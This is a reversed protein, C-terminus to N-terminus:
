GGYQFVFSKFVATDGDIAIDGDVLSHWQDILEYGNRKFQEIFDSESFVCCAYSAEYIPEHVTEIWVRHRKCVPTREVVIYKIKKAVVMQIVDNANDLYQLVSSFLVCNCKPIKDISEPPYCFHLNPRELHGKAYEVFHEQEIVTWQCNMEDLLDRHQFFTSAFAGGWDCIELKNELIFIRQLYMMLNYNIAKEYFLFTDREYVAKGEIVAVVAYKAKEFIAKSDYGDCFKQAEEFSAYDGRYSVSEDNKKILTRLKSMIQQKM